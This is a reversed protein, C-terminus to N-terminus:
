PLERCSVMPFTANFWYELDTKQVPVSFEKRSDAVVYSKGSKAQFKVIGGTSEMGKGDAKPIFVEIEGDIGFDDKSIERYICRM